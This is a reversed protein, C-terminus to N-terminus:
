AINEENETVPARLKITHSLVQARFIPITTKKKKKSIHASHAM